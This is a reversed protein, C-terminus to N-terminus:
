AGAYEKAGSRPVAFERKGGKTCIREKFKLFQKEYLHWSLVALVLSISAGWVIYLLRGLFDSGLWLGVDYASFWSELAPALTGQFVYWGYSYKGCWRLARASCLRGAWSSPNTTIAVVILAGFLLAFVTYGLSFGRGVFLRMAVLALTAAVAVICIKPVLARVGDPGRSALALFGGVALADMRCPTLTELAIGSAGYLLLGIRLAAAGVICAVCVVLAQRRTCFYIVLPWILYFHEEVALSWFHNFGTLMWDDNWAIFLNSGYLWLWAQNTIAEGYLSAVGPAVRPVLVLMLLLFGYYLPFIRLTRRAYFTRFFRPGSKADYLIGTILFGSLVFFLDVGRFGHGFLTFIARGLPSLDDAESSFRFVTVMLIALGRIADLAPLHSGIVPEYCATMEKGCGTPDVRERNV